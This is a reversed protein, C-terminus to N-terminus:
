PHYLARTATNEVTLDLGEEYAAIAQHEGGHFKWIRGIKPVLRTVGILGFFLGLQLLSSGAVHWTSPLIALGFNVGTSLAGVIVAFGVIPWPIKKSGPKWGRVVLSLQGVLKPLIRIFPIKEIASPKREPLAFAEVSLTGDARERAIAAALPTLMMVGDPLASGGVRIGTPIAQEM